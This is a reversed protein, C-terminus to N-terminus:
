IKEDKYFVVVFFRILVHSISIAFLLLKMKYLSLYTDRLILFLSVYIIYLILSIFDFKKKRSFFIVLFFVLINYNYDISPEM